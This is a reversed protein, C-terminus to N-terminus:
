KLISSKNINLSKGEKKLKILNLLYLEDFRTKERM